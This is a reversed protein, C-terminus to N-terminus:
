IFCIEVSVLSFSSFIRGVFKACAELIPPTFGASIETKITINFPYINNYIYYFYHIILFLVDIGYVGGVLYYSLRKKRVFLYLIAFLAILIIISLAIYFLCNELNIFGIKAADPFAMLSLSCGYLCGVIDLQTFVNALFPFCVIAVISSIIVVSIHMVGLLYSMHSISRNM